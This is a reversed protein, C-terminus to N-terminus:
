AHEFAPFASGGLREELRAKVTELLATEGKMQTDMRILDRLLELASKEETAWDLPEAARAAAVALAVLVAVGAVSLARRLPRQSHAELM